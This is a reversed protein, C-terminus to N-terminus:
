RRRAKASCAAEVSVLWDQWGAALAANIVQRSLCYVAAWAGCGDITNTPFGRREIPWGYKRNLARIVTALRV